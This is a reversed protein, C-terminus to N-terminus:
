DNDRVMTAADFDDLSRQRGCSPAKVMGASEHVSSPPVPHAVTLEVGEATEQLILQSGASLGFRRRIAAPLVIQGKSSLTVIM